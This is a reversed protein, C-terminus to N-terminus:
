HTSSQFNPPLQLWLFIIAGTVGSGLIAFVATLLMLPLLMLLGNTLQSAFVGPLLFPTDLTKRDFSFGASFDRAIQNFWTGGMYVLMAVAGLVVAAGTAEASAPYQGEDHARRLRRGTPEETRQDEDEM